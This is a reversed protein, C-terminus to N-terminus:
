QKMQTDEENMRERWITENLEEAFTQLARIDDTLTLLGLQQGVGVEKEDELINVLM